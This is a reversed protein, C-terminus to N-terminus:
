FPLPVLKITQLIFNRNDYFKQYVNSYTIHKEKNNYAASLFFLTPPMKCDEMHQSLHMYYHLILNSLSLRRVHIVAKFLWM